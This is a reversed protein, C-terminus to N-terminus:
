LIVDEGGEALMKKYFIANYVPAATAAIDETAARCWQSAVSPRHLPSVPYRM